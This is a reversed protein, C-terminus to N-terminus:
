EKFLDSIVVKLGPLLTETLVDSGALIGKLLLGYQSDHYIEVNDYRPDLMWLRPIKCEEYIAKKVVTDTRHDGAHVIEAALWLKGTAVTVLALDPRLLTGPALQVVSRPPLLRTTSTETISASVYSHLRACITEHRQSPSARLLTEGEVIEEYPQSM